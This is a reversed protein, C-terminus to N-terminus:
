RRAPRVEREGLMRVVARSVRENKRVEAWAPGSSTLAGPANVRMRSVSM